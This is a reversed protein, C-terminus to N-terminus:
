IFVNTRCSYATSRGFFNEWLNVDYVDKIQLSFCKSKRFTFAFSLFFSWEFFVHLFFNRLSSINSCLIELAKEICLGWSKKEIRLLANKFTLTEISVVLFFINKSSLAFVQWSELAKQCQYSILLVNISQFINIKWGHYIMRYEMTTHQFYYLRCQCLFVHTRLKIKDIVFARLM